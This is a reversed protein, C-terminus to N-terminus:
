ARSFESRASTKIMFTIRQPMPPHSVRKHCLRKMTQSKRFGTATQAIPMSQVIRVSDEFMPSVITIPRNSGAWSEPGSRPSRAPIESKVPPVSRCTFQFLPCGVISMNAISEHVPNEKAQEEHRRPSFCCLCRGSVCSETIEVALREPLNEPANQVFLSRAQFLEVENFKFTVCESFNSLHTEMGKTEWTPGAIATWRVCEREIVWDMRKRQYDGL